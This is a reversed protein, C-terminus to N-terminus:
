DVFVASYIMLHKSSVNDLDDLLAAIGGSLNGHLRREPPRMATAENSSTNGDNSLSTNIILHNRMAMGGLNIAVSNVNDDDELITAM